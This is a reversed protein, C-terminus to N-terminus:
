QLSPESAPPGGDAEPTEHPLVVRQQKPGRQQLTGYPVLTVEFATRGQSAEYAARFRASVQQLGALASRQYHLALAQTARASHDTAPGVSRGLVLFMVLPVGIAAVFGHPERMFIRIELWTLKFLGRM